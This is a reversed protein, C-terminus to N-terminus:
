LMQKQSNKINLKYKYTASLMSMKYTAATTNPHKAKIIWEGLWAWIECPAELTNGSYKEGYKWQIEM